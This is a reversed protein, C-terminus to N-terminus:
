RRAEVATVCSPAWSVLASVPQAAGAVSGGPRRRWGAASTSRTPRRERTTPRRQIRRRPRRRSPRRRSAAPPSQGEEISWVGIKGVRGRLQVEQVFLLGAPPESLGAKTTESFFLQHPTGKTLSELRSASNTTDGVAAYEVRQESGVNGSMVHGSNLGIGM